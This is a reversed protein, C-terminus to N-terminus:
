QKFTTALVKQILAIFRPDDRMGDLWYSNVFRLTFEKERFGTNLWAMAQDRDGIGAYGSAMFTPDVWQHKWREELAHLIGLAEDRKGMRGYTIALGFAPQGTMTQFAQYAAVSEPLHGLERLAAGDWADGYVVTADLRKTVSDQKLAEAWRRGWALAAARSMSAMASLPDVRILRDSVDLGEAFEGNASQFLSFMFLADPANPDLALGRRMEVLGKPFDWEAAAIEFGYLVHAEALMSDRQVAHAAADKALLHYEHSPRYADALMDYAFALGAYAKAYSSDLTIAEKFYTVAHNLGQESLKNKEFVARMYFDHAAPNETRGAQAVARSASSLVLQMESAIAATVEDQVAFNDKMARDFKNSWLLKGTADLLQMQLRISDGRSQMTGTLLLGVGLERAIQGVALTTRKFRFTSLDGAGDLGPTQRLNGALESTMGDALYEKTSDGGSNVIPLVALSHSSGSGTAASRSHSFVGYGIAALVVVGLGALQLMRGRVMSRPASVAVIGSPDGAVRAFESCSMFRDAPAKALARL